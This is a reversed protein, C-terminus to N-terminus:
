ITTSITIQYTIQNGSNINQYRYYARLLECNRSVFNSDIFPKIKIKKLSHNLTFHDCSNKQSTVKLNYKSSKPGGSVMKILCYDSGSLLKSAICVPGSFHWALIGIPFFLIIGSGITIRMLLHCFIYHM